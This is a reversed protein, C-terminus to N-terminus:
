VEKALFVKTGALGFCVCSILQGGCKPCREIDCGFHHVNGPSNLIGCDHCHENHDYYSTDRKFVQGDINITDLSCSVTDPDLMEKGCDQCMSM